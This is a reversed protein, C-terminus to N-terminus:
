ARKALRGRRTWAKRRSPAAPKAEIWVRPLSNTSNPGRRCAPARAWSAANSPPSPPPSARANRRRGGTPWRGPTPATFLTEQVQRTSSRPRLVPNIVPHVAKQCGRTGTPAARSAPTARRGAGARERAPRARGHRARVRRTSSRLIDRLRRPLPVRDLLGGGGLDADLLTPVGRARAERFADRTAEVWRFDSLVAAAGAIRELPLWSSDMPMAHDREGIILREGGQRRHGGLDVLARGRVHARLQTDVGDAKLIRLSHAPRRQRRRHPEM